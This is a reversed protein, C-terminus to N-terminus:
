FPDVTCYTASRALYEFGQPGQQQWKENCEYLYDYGANGQIVPDVGYGDFVVDDDEQGKLTDAGARGYLEDGGTGGNLTDAAADGKLQDFGSEGNLTDVGDGGLVRDWADGNGDVSVSDSGGQADICDDTSGYSITTDGDGLHAIVDTGPPCPHSAGAPMLSTIAIILAIAAAFTGRIKM